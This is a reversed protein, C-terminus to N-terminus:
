QLRDGHPPERDDRAWLPRKGSALAALLERARNQNKAAQEDAPVDWAPLATFEEHYPAIERGAKEASVLDAPSPPLKSRLAHAACAALFRQNSWGPLTRLIRRAILDLEDPTWRNQPYLGLNFQGLEARVTEFDLM